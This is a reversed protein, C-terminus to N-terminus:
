STDDSSTVANLLISSCYINDYVNISSCAHLSSLLAEMVQCEHDMNWMSEPSQYQAQILLGVPILAQKHPVSVYKNGQSVTEFQAESCLPCACLKSYPGTFAVCSDYCMDTM